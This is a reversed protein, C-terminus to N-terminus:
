SPIFALMGLATGFRTRCAKRNLRLSVARLSRPLWSSVSIVAAGLWCCCMAFLLKNAIPSTLKAGLMPCDDIGGADEDEDDDDLERGEPM